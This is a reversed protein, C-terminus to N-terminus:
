EILKKGWDWCVSTISGSVRGDGTPRSGSRGNGVTGPWNCGIPTVFGNGITGEWRFIRGGGWAWNRGLARVIHGDGVSM